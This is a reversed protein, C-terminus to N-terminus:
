GGILSDILDEIEYFGKRDKIFEAGLVAGLALGKRSRNQHSMEITDFPSDFQVTHLGPNSGGRVSAFHIEDPDPKRNLMGYEVKNKRNIGEILINAIKIATGSPSDVKGNHHIEYGMIDYDDINNFLKAAAEVLRFYLNVGISFNPSWLFGVDNDLVVEKVYPLRRYWGTTGVVMNKGLGAMMEINTVASDPQTFDICVDCGKLSTESLENYRADTNSTDITVCEHGRGTALGEIEHGMRGYGVIAIRM